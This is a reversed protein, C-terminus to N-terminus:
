LCLCSYRKCCSFLKPNSEATGSAPFDIGSHFGCTYSSNPNGFPQGVTCTIHLPSTSITVTAM